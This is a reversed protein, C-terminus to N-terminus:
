EGRRTHRALFFLGLGLGTAVIGAGVIVKGWTGLGGDNEAGRWSPNHRVVALARQRHATAIM